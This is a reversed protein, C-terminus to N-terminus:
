CKNTEAPRADLEAQRVEDRYRDGRAEDATGFEIHWLEQTVEYDFRDQDNSM